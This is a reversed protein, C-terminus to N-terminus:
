KGAHCLIKVVSSKWSPAMPVEDKALAPVEEDPCTPWATTIKSERYKRIWIKPIIDNTGGSFEVGIFRGLSEFPQFAMFNIDLRYFINSILM